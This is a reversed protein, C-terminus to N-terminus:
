TAGLIALVAFLYADAAMLVDKVLTDITKDNIKAKPTKVQETPMQSLLDSRLQEARTKTAVSSSRNQSVAMLIELASEVSGQRAQIEAEGVLADLLVPLTQMERAISIADVFYKRAAEQEGAKL